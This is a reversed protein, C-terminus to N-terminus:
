SDTAVLTLNEVEFELNTPEVLYLWGKGRPDKCALAPDDRIAQNVELVKGSLPAYLSHIHADSGTIMACTKGQEITDGENRLNISMLNCIAGLFNEEVGIRVAGADEIRAWVHDGLRYINGTKVPGSLQELKDGSIGDAELRTARRVVGSLEERTFPKAIFDFAGLKLAKMAISMTAYGTVMIVRMQRDQKRIHELLQMGDMEPMMLDTLVIDYHNQELSNIADAASSVDDINYNEKKLAKRISLRVVEEDDVVLIKANESM